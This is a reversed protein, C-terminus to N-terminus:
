SSTYAVLESIHDPWFCMYRAHKFNSKIRCFKCGFIAFNYFNIIDLISFCYGGALISELKIALM